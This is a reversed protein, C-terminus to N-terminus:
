VVVDRPFNNYQINKQKQKKKLPGFYQQTVLLCQWHIFTQMFSNSVLTIKSCVINPSLANLSNELPHIEEMRFSTKIQRM